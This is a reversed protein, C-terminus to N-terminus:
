RYEFHIWLAGLILFCILFPLVTAVLVPLYGYGGLGVMYSNLLFLFLGAVTTLLSSYYLWKTRVPSYLIFSAIWVMVILMIPTFLHSFYHVEHHSVKFGAEKNKVILRRLAWMSLHTAPKLSKEIDSGKITSPEKMDQFSKPKQDPLGLVGEHFFLSHDKFEIKKGFIYRKFKGKSSFVMFAAQELQIPDHTMKKSRIISYGESGLIRMWAGKGDLSFDIVNGGKLHKTALHTYDGKFHAALPNLLAIKFVGIVLAGSLFPSLLRLFPVGSTVLILSELSSKFRWFSWVAAILVCFPLLIDFNYPVNLLALKLQVSFAIKKSGVRRVVEVLQIIFILFSFGISTLVFHFLFKRFLYRFIIM